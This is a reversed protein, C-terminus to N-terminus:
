VSRNKVTQQLTPATESISNKTRNRLIMAKPTTSPRTSVMKLEFSSYVSGNKSTVTYQHSDDESNDEGGKDKLSDGTMKNKSLSVDKELYRLTENLELNRAAQFLARNVAEDFQEKRMKVMEEIYSVQLYLLSVFSFGMIIGLAWITSKKM